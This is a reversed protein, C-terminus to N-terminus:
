KRKRRIARITFGTFLATIAGISGLITEPVVLLLRPSPSIDKRAYVWTEKPGQYDTGYKFRISTTIPLDSPITWDFTINSPKLGLTFTGIEVNYATDGTKYRAWVHIETNEYETINTINFHYTAGPYVLYNGATNKELEDGVESTYAYLIGTGQRSKGYCKALHFLDYVDIKGDPELDCLENWRADGRVSGYANRLIKLDEMDVIGDGNLDCRLDEEPNTTFSWTDSQTTLGDPDKAVAYWQYTTTANLGNWPVSATGGSPINTAIGILKPPPASTYTMDYDLTFESAADTDYQNLYPSYTRVYIEDEAPRFELTRLWGNGGNTITQYNALLQYVNHGNVNDTRRAEGTSHGCLVLFVQDAHPKIFKSWIHEGSTSRSTGSLYDHTTVIVRRHLYNSITTNAWSLVADSPNNQFHFILYDDMGSSFLQYSNTNNNTQYAGGYWSKGSFRSYGFYTNYYTVDGTSSYDHNGPLVGWPVNNDLKSMANNANQWETASNWTNVLDGEHTVFLVNMKGVNNTIWQTQNSFIAPYSQSYVQTDPLVVITFNEAPETGTTAQYFYVDMPEGDPDTVKVSLAVYTPNGTSGNPPNPNTPKEPPNGYTIYQDNMCKYQANIWNLSRATNSIWVEDIVGDFFDELLPPNKSGISFTSTNNVNRGAGTQSGKLNGDVYLYITSTERRFAIFHWQNDSYTETTQIRSDGGDYLNGAISNSSLEIKYNNPITDATNGKRLIDSDVNNPGYKVWVSITFDSTGLNLSDSHPMSIYDSDGDFEDAGDVKGPVDQTAGHYTGDNDHSTSDTVTGSTEELHQVMKFSSDWVQPSNIYPSDPPTPNGYYLYIFDTTSGADIQPVKVWVIAKKEAYNWYEVEFYLATIGDADVFRLDKYSTGVHSWFYTGARSLNVMVPFNILNESIAANKFLLKKSYQWGNTILTRMGTDAKYDLTDNAYWRYGVVTEPVSNLTETVNAWSETGSVPATQNQWAGTNNTSFICTDLGDPDTWKVQFKCLAGTNTTNTAINSFVPPGPPLEESGYTLLTNKESNYSAKIWAASRAVNSIRVEDLSGIYWRGLSTPQTADKGLYLPNTNTVSGFSTGIAIEAKWAGNIYAIMKAATRDVVVTCMAWVSGPNRSPDDGTNLRINNTGDGISPSFGLSDTTSTTFKYGATTAGATGGKKDLFDRTNKDRCNFWFSYSFSNTGFNLSDASSVSIYADNAPVDQATGAFDDAGNIQGTTIHTLKGGNPTGDNNNVTSDERTGSAEKLHLVMACSDWVNTPDQADTASPNGYYIYFDTNSSSSVTPLKIWIEAKGDTKSWREIEYKLLTTEDSSTFRIDEGNTQAKNFDFFSSDLKVLVPFNTLDSDILASNVTLKRRYNWGSLWDPSAHAKITNNFFMTYVSTSLIISLFITLVLLRTRTGKM